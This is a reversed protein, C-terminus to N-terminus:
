TRYAGKIYLSVIHQKEHGEDGLLVGSVEFLLRAEKRGHVDQVLLEGTAGLVLVAAVASRRSGGRGSGGGHVQRRRGWRASWLGLGKGGLLEIILGDRRMLEFAGIIVISSLVILLVGHHRRQAEVREDVVVMGAVIVGVSAGSRRERDSEIDERIKDRCYSSLKRKKRRRGIWRITDEHLITSLDRKTHKGNGRM